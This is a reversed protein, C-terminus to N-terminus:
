PRQRKLFEKIVSWDLKAAHELIATGEYAMCLWVINTQLEYGAGCLYGDMLRGLGALLFIAARKQVGKRVSASSVSCGPESIAAGAAVFAELVVFGTLAQMLGSLDESFWQAITVIFNTIVNMGHYLLM